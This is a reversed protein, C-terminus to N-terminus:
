FKGKLVIAQGEITTIWETGIEHSINGIRFGVKIDGLYWTEPLFERPITFYELM